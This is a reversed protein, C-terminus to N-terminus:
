TATAACLVAYWCSQGARSVLMCTDNLGSAQGVDWSVGLVLVSVCWIAALM